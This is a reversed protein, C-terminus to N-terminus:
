WCRCISSVKACLAFRTSCRRCLMIFDAHQRVQMCFRRLMRLKAVSERRLDCLVLRVEMAQRGAAQRLRECDQLQRCEERTKM